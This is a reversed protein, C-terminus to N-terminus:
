EVGEVDSRDNRIKSSMEDCGPEVRRSKLPQSYLQEVRDVAHLENADEDVGDGSRSVSMM